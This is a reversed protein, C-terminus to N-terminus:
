RAPAPSVNSGGFPHEAFAAYTITNTSGNKAAATTRVKFGNALFDVAYSTDPSEASALNPHLPTISQNYTERSVDQIHWDSAASANKWMIYKPRFGCYVFPGDSSANGVYSGFKSYGAIEAFCYAVFTKLNENTANTNISGQSCTFTTSSVGGIGGDSSSALTFQTSTGNLYLNNSATLNAHYAMWSRTGDRNKVIVLKPTSGLGHGVTAGNTGNGTYTVISFGATTNASLRTAAISGALASGLNAGDIKVSGATPTNGAGAVNDTSPAGGAKWLWDVHTVTNANWDSDSAGLTFGDSTAAFSHSAPAGGNAGEAGTTSSSLSKSAGFGRVCDQLFHHDGASRAKNWVFDTQFLLGTKTYSAATGTRTVVDFHSAPKKIAVSPLNATCLSKASSPLSGHQTVYNFTRQGFNWAGGVASAGGGSGIWWYTKTTPLSTIAGQSVFNGTGGTQKYFTLTAAGRDVLIGIVDNATWTSGYAAGAGTSDIFKTGSGAEYSWSTGRGGRLADNLVAVATNLGVALEYGGPLAECTFEAWWVGTDPVAM